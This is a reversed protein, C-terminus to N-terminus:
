EPWRTLAISAQMGHLLVSLTSNFHLDTSHTRMHIATHLKWIRRVAYPGSHM